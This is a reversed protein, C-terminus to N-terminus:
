CRTDGITSVQGTLRYPAVQLYDVGAREPLAQELQCIDTGLRTYDHGDLPHGFAVQTVALYNPAPHELRADM